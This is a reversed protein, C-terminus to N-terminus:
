LYFNHGDERQKYCSGQYTKRKYDVTVSYRNSVNLCNKRDRKEIENSKIKQVRLFRSYFPFTEFFTSSNFYALSSLNWFPQM